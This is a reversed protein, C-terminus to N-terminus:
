VNSMPMIPVHKIEMTAHSKSWLNSKQVFPHEWVALPCKLSRHVMKELAKINHWIWTLQNHVELEIVRSAIADGVDNCISHVVDPHHTGM